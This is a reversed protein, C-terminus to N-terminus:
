RWILTLHNDKSIKIKCLQSCSQTFQYKVAYNQTVWFSSCMQTHKAAKDPTENDLM